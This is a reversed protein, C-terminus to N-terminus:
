LRMLEPVVRAGERYPEKAGAGNVSEEARAETVPSSKPEDERKPEETKM